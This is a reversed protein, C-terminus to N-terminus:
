PRVPSHSRFLVLLPADSSNDPDLTFDLETDDDAPMAKDPSVHPWTVWGLRLEPHTRRLHDYAQRCIADREAPLLADYGNLFWGFLYLPLIDDTYLDAEKEELLAALANTMANPMSM